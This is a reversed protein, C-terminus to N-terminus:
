DLQHRYRNNNHMNFKILYNFKLLVQIIAAGGYSDVSIPRSWYDQGSPGQITSAKFQLKIRNENTIDHGDGRVGLDMSPWKSGQIIDYQEKHHKTNKLTDNSPTKFKFSFNDGRRLIQAFGTYSLNSSSTEQVYESMENKNEELNKGLYPPIWRNSVHEDIISNGKKM